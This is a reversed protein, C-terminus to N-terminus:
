QLWSWVVGMFQTIKVTLRSFFFHPGNSNQGGGLQIGKEDINYINEWPINHEKIVAEFQKSFDQVVPQNFAQA